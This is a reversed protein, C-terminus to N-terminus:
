PKMERAMTWCGRLFIKSYIDLRSRKTFTSINAIKMKSQAKGVSHKYCMTVGAGMTDWFNLLRQSQEYNFASQSGCYDTKSTFTSVRIIHNHVRVLPVGSTIFLWFDLGCCGLTDLVDCYSISCLPIKRQFILSWWWICGYTSWVFTYHLKKHVHQLICQLYIFHLSFWVIKPAHTSFCM